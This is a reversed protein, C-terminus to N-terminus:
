YEEKQEVLNSENRTGLYDITERFCVSEYKAIIMTFGLETNQTPPSNSGLWLCLLILFCYIIFYRIFFPDEGANLVVSLFTKPLEM